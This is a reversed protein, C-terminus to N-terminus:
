SRSPFVGDLAIIYNIALFPQMNNHAQSGGTQGITTTSTATSNAIATSAHLTTDPPTDTSYITEGSPTKALSGGSIGRGSGDVDAAKIEITTSVSTNSTATHTHSPIETETLNVQAVGGRDGLRYSPLGPGTGPHIPARGQLDPLQFSTRGDGGYTTGLLSYLASYQNIPLLAGSCYSWGRPAFNGAFITIQALFPQSMTTFTNQDSENSGRTSGEEHFMM